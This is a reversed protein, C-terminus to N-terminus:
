VIPLKVIVSTGHGERSKITVTGELSRVIGNVIYLGLGNGDAKYKTANAGRTFRDFVRPLDAAPIGCGFDEIEVMAKTGATRSRVIIEAGDPSFDIANSLLEHLVGAILKTDMRMTINETLDFRVRQGRSKLRTDAEAVVDRLVSSLSAFEPKFELRGSHVLDVDKLTKLIAKLREVGEHIDEINKQISDPGSEELEQLSWSIISLPGGLQHFALRLLGSRELELQEMGDLKKKWLFLVISGAICFAAFTILLFAVPSFISQALTRYDDAAMDIGLIAVITGSKTRIPAYGSLLAGWQDSAVEEDVAPHLFAEEGLVPFDTWDYLDGPQSAEEDSDVTGNRNRDLQEPTLALDADAIFKLMRPDDTKKMIYAYRISSIGDRIDNLKAVTERLVTSQEVSDGDNISGIRDGDFQMAAAAATSRLKDKLQVEMMMQGRKFFFSGVIVLAMVILASLLVSPLFGKTRSLAGPSYSNKMSIKNNYCFNQKQAM